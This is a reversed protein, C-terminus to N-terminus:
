NKLVGNKRLYKISETHNDFCRQKGEIAALELTVFEVNMTGMLDIIRGIQIPNSTLIPQPEGDHVTKLHTEIWRKGLGSLFSMIKEPDNIGRSTRCFPNAIDLQLGTFSSLNLFDALGYYSVGDGFFIENGNEVVFRINKDRALLASNDAIRALQNLEELTWGKKNPDKDFETRSVLARLIGPGTFISVNNLAREFVESYGADLPNKNFVYIVDTKNEKAKFALLKCEDITLDANFDRIEVYQYGEAAAYDIIESLGKVDFPMSKLFNSTSLGFKLEPYDRFVMTKKPTQKTM